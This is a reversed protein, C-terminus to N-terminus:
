NAQWREAQKILERGISRFDGEYRNGAKEGVRIIVMDYDPLIIILQGGLGRFSYNRVEVGPYIWFSHGYYPSKYGVQAAAIFASDIVSNSDIYGHNSVLMGLKAFDRVSGNLCCYGLEFGVARDLHWTTPVEFGVKAFLERNAFSSISEGTARTLAITLLQTCASQYEWQTGTEFKGPSISLATEVVDDGYYLKATKNFPNKYNEDFQLGATMTSLHRLTPPTVGEPIEYEPIYDTVLNDWSGIYGDQIAIQTLLTIVSKVTSFSNSVATTNHKDWYEEYVIEDYQLILMGKTGASELLGRLEDDISLSISDSVALKKPLIVPIERQDFYARDYLHATTYGKLYTNKVGKFLYEYPSLKLAILLVVVVVVIRRLLKM